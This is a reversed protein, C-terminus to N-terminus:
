SLFLIMAWRLTPPSDSPPPPYGAPPSLFICCVVFGVLRQLSQQWCLSLRADEAGGRISKTFFFFFFFFFFFWQKCGGGRSCPRTCQCPLYPQSRCNGTHYSQYRHCTSPFTFLRGRGSTQNLYACCDLPLPPLPRPPVNCSGSWQPRASQRPPSPLPQACGFPAELSLNRARFSATCPRQPRWPPARPM